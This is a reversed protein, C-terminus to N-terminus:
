KLKELGYLRVHEVDWEDRWVGLVWTDAVELVAFRDPMEVDGLLRGDDSFVTWERRVAPYRTYGGVWINGLRDVLISGYAPRTAPTDMAVLRARTAIQRDPSERAVTLDIAGAADRDTLQLDRDLVRIVRRVAGTTSYVAVELDTQDGLILEAGRIAVSSNHAFLPAGGRHRAHTARIAELGARRVM